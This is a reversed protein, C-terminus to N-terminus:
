YSRALIDFILILQVVYLSDCKVILSFLNTERVLRIGFCLLEVEVIDIDRIYKKNQNLTKSVFIYSLANYISMYYLKWWDDIFGDM